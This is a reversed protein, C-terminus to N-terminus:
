GKQLYEQSEQAVLGDAMAALGPFDPLEADDAVIAVADARAQEIVERDRLLSLQRLSSNRGAQSTGLVDGERRLELDAEALAFGDNTRAVAELRERGSSAAPAESVLLCLGPQSGRGVRGRIQHLQSVGFREADLVVMVTANPVDVGVEIVTTAVLVDIDGAAFARMVADKDAPAMRGHLVDLRVSALPGSRLQEAVTLVALPPRRTAPEAARHTGDESGDGLGLGEGTDDVPELDLGDDAREGAEGIKPCVVYAQRGQGVEEVVRQWARDLWGPKEAAPVVTTSM